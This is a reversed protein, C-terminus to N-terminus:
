ACVISLHGEIFTRPPLPDLSTIVNSDPTHVILPLPPTPESHLFNMLITECEGQNVEFSAHLFSCVMTKPLNLGSSIVASVILRAFDSPYHRSQEILSPFFGNAFECSTIFSVRSNDQQHL